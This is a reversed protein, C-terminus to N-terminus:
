ARVERGYSWGKGAFLADNRVGRSHLISETGIHRVFFPQSVLGSKQSPYHQLAWYGILKDFGREPRDQFPAQRPRWDTPHASAWAAFARADAARMAVAQSGRMEILPSLGADRGLRQIPTGPLAFFRYVAVDPRARDDLWRVMSQMPHACCELDDELMVIWDADVDDLASVQRIGNANPTYRRTPVHVTACPDGIDELLWRIDPDTPFIHLRQADTNGLSKITQGLYNRKPARNATRITFIVRRMM